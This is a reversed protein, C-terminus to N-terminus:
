QKEYDDKVDSMPEPQFGKWLCRLLEVGAKTTCGPVQAAGQQLCKDFEAQFIKNCEKAVNHVQASAVGGLTHFVVIGVTVGLKLVGLTSKEFVM